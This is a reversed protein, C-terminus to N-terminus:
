HRSSIEEHSVDVLKAVRDGRAPQEVVDTARGAAAPHQHFDAAALRVAEQAVSNLRLEFPRDLQDVPRAARHADCRDLGDIQGLLQAQL